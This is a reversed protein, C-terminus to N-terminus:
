LLQLQENTRKPVRRVFREPPEDVLPKLGGAAAILGRVRGTLANRAAKPGYANDAYLDEYRKVLNPYEADLWRM